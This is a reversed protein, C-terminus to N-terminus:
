KKIQLSNAWDCIEAIQTADLVKEPHSSIFSSPPMFHSTVAKCIAKSKKTQKKASYNNWSSFNVNSAAMPNANDAHCAMCSNKFTKMVNEPIVPSVKKTEKAVCSFSTLLIVAFLSAAIISTLILATKKM